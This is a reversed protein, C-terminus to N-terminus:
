PSSNEPSQTQARPAKYAAFPVPWAEGPKLFSKRSTLISFAPM